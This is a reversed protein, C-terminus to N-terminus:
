PVPRAALLNPVRCQGAIWDRTLPCIWDAIRTVTAHLDALPRNFMPEHHAMRNRPDHLVRVASDADRRM